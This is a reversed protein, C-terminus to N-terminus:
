PPDFNHVYIEMARWCVVFLIQMDILLVFTLSAAM